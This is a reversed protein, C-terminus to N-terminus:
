PARRLKAYGRAVLFLAAALSAIIFGVPLGTAYALAIGSWCCALNLAIGLAVATWPRKALAAAAAPPGVVMAFILLTGTTPISTTVAVAVCALFAANIRRLPVGRARALDANITSFLLPRYLVAIAGLCLLMLAATELVQRRDIGVITGFLLTFADTAYTRNLVLLLAGLGLAATMVLATSADRRNERSGLGGIASSGALSLALLGFLPDVGILVAGAAGAFGIQALAHCAFSAGRMVVFFGVVGAVISVCAGVLFANQMYGQELMGTM